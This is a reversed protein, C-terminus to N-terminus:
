EENRASATPSRVNIPPVRIPTPPRTVPVNVPASPTTSARQQRRKNYWQNCIADGMEFKGTILEIFLLATASILIGKAMGASSEVQYSAGVLFVLALARAIEAMIMVGIRLMDFWAGAFDKTFGLDELFFFVQCALVLILMAITAGMQNNLSEKMDSGGSVSVEDKMMENRGAFVLVLTVGVMVMQVIPSASLMNFSEM